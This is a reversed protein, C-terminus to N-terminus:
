LMGLREKRKLYNVRGLIIGLIVYPLVMPSNSILGLEVSQHCFLVLFATMAGAISTDEIYRRGTKVILHFLRTWLIYGVIGYGTLCSIASNHWNAKITSGHGFLFKQQLLQFGWIWLEDRGNFLDKEFTEQSWQKLNSVDAFLSLLCVFIAVALPVLLIVFIGKSSRIIKTVPILRLVLILTVIVVIIGSRSDTPIILFVYAAGVIPMLVFSRWGRMGFFPITFVLFSYLGLMAISNPNWGKLIDMYNFVYLIFLGLAGYAIATMRLAKINPRTFSMIYVILFVWFGEARQLTQHNILTSAIVVGALPLLIFFYKRPILIDGDQMARYAVCCLAVLVTAFMALETTKYAVGLGTGNFLNIVWLLVMCGTYIISSM